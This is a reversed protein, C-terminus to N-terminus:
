KRHSDSTRQMYLIYPDRFLSIPLSKDSNTLIHTSRFSDLSWTSRNRCNSICPVQFLFGPSREKSKKYLDVRKIKNHGKFEDFLRVNKGINRQYIENAIYARSGSFWRDLGKILIKIKGRYM